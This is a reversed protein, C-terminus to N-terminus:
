INRTSRWGRKYVYKVAFTARRPLRATFTALRTRQVYTGLYPPIIPSGVTAIPATMGHIHPQAARFSPSFSCRHQDTGAITIAIPPSLRSITITITAFSTPIKDGSMTCLPCMPISFPMEDNNLKIPFKTSKMLYEPNYIARIVRLVFGYFFVYTLLNGEEIRM